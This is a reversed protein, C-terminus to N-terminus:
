ANSKEESSDRSIPFDIRVIFTRQSRVGAIYYKFDMGLSECIKECTKLGIRNSEKGETDELIHNKVVCNLKGYSNSVDVTIEKEPDAYKHINSFLNDIVRMIKPADTLVQTNEKITDSLTMRVKYGNESLLLIHETFLQEILTKADYAAIDVKSDNGGFVLFYRFMDDSLEKLRLATSESAKIYEQMQTDNTSNKMIDLYGLLVTLPTRIDHSMSTILDTNAEIAKKEKELSDIMSSRMQEVNRSLTSIEDNGCGYRIPTNMDVEYVSSVDKALRSIKFIIRQFYLMLAVVIILVGGVIAAINAIDYYIYATFDALTVFLTGDSLELQRLGNKEATAIIEERTPYDVTFGGGPRATTDNDEKDASGTKDDNGDPVNSSESDGSSEDGEGTNEEGSPEGNTDEGEGGGDTVSDNQDQEASSDFFLQNDKYLFLYVNRNKHVWQTIKSTDTSSLKNESVYTQLDEIYKDYRAKKQEASDYDKEVWNTILMRSFFAFGLGLFLSIIIALLMGSRLSRTHKKIQNILRKIM